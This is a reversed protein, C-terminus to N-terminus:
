DWTPERGRLTTATGHENLSIELPPHERARSGTAAARLADRNVSGKTLGDAIMDRTDEWMLSSLLKSSLLERLWLIHPYLSHEAPPKPRPATVATLLGMSDVALIHNYAYPLEGERLRRADSSSVPGKQVEHLILALALCHDAAAIASMLESTFTSRTVTKLTGCQWDLLHCPRQHDPGEGLRLYVAGRMARGAAQGEKEEKRFAGDSHVELTKSCKMPRYSLTLPNLQAWRVLTNLKRVHGCTPTQAHRQLAVVYVHLDMRTLLTFALAMLLSLYLRAVEATALADNSQGTMQSSGVPKLASIYEIQDLDYGQDERCVHRVGCCTFNHRTIDLEGKGFMTELADEFQQQAEDTGTCKLDDVHKTAMFELEGTHDHRCILEPDYTTGKAGYNTNTAEALKLSWCRPADKCGTGPKIMHLVETNHDFDEYGPCLRLVEVADPSLEFNVEREPEGTAAALDQYTIGKLFAKKVDLATLTWGRCVAESVIVRQSLRASTGAYTAIDNADVDKFGRLTLRMRVIRVKKTPDDKSKTYKWKGVWRCDLINRAGQRPRREFCEHEIWVKFEELVAAAVEGKHTKYEEATLLDTDRDIVAKKPGAAYCRIRGCMGLPVPKDMVLKAADGPCLMEVYAQGNEDRDIANHPELVAAGAAHYHYHETVTALTGTAQSPARPLPEPKERLEDRSVYAHELIDQMLTKQNEELQAWWVADIEAASDQDEHSGEQITSLRSNNAPSGAEESGASPLSTPPSPPPTYGDPTPDDTGLMDAMLPGDENPALLIQLYRQRDWDPGVVTETNLVTKDDDSDYRGYDQPDNRWWLLISGGSSTPPFKRIAVGLRVAMADTIQYVVRILHELALAVDRRTQNVKVSERISDRKQQARETVLAKLGYRVLQHPPLTDMYRHLIKWPSYSPSTPNNVTGYVLGTFDMFRRVDGLRRKLDKGRYEITVQGRNPESLKVVAPGKWGPRDKTDPPSYFDVLEGPNFALAQGSPTTRTAMSRNLRATATAEVIRQVAIERIRHANRGPGASDDPLALLDPLIRPQKGFRANYPTVGGVNTLANGAFVCEALLAPMTVPLGERAMQEEATHMSHRLVAGRREIMRAHQAPARTRVTIGQRDFFPKALPSSLGSEGDVILYKFPGLTQLWCRQIAACLRETTKFGVEDISNALLEAAHWRDARDIMHWIPYQKYFLIDGEVEEDPKTCLEVSPTPQPGHSQWARCERCTDVIDAVKDTVSKPCGAARLVREMQTRTAHWWRLHLKRLERRIQADTGTRLMRLSQTVDFATWDEPNDGAAREVVQPQVRPPARPGAERPPPPPQPDAPPADPRDGIPGQDPPMGESGPNLASGPLGANPDQSAPIRPERPHSGQQGTRRENIIRHSADFWRCEGPRQTHDQHGRPRPPVRTCGPCTYPHIEGPPIACEGPVRTHRADTRSRNARCGPCNPFRERNSMPTDASGPAGERSGRAEPHSSEAPPDPETGIEPYSQSAFTAQILYIIGQVVREALGWPWVQLHETGQGWTEAHQHDGRCRLNEFPATLCPSSAMAITPKKVLLGGKRQGCRCQDFVVAIFAPHKQVRDWPAVKLIHSPYPQEVFFHRGERLQHLAVTGCFSVHPRDELYHKYWTDYNLSKNLNSPPGLARCSPAMVAVLVRNEDLYHLVMRQAAKDGLDVNTVLDFNAGTELRKRVAIRSTRAEGGCLECLDLGAARGLGRTIGIFEQMNTAQLVTLNVHKTFWWTLLGFVTSEAAREIPTLAPAVNIMTDTYLEGLSKLDGLGSLDDGIDDHWEEVHKKRAVPIHGAAKREKARLADETPFCEAAGPSGTSAPAERPTQSENTANCPTKPNETTTYNDTSITMSYSDPECPSHDTGYLLSALLHRYLGTRVQTRLRGKFAVTPMHGKDYHWGAQHKVGAACRCPRDQVPVTALLRWEHEAAPGLEPTATLGYHCLRITSRHTDPRQKLLELSEQKWSLGQPGSIVAHIQMGASLEMLTKCMRFSKNIRARLMNHQAPLDIWVLDYRGAKVQTPLSAMSPDTVLGPTCTVAVWGQEQLLVSMAPVEELILAMPRRETPLTLPPFVGRVAMYQQHAPNDTTQQVCKADTHLLRTITNRPAQPLARHLQSETMGRVDTDELLCGTDADYVKRRIVASWEPGGSKTDM